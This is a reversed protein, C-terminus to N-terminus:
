ASADALLLLLLSHRNYYGEARCRRRRGSRDTLRLAASARGHGRASEALERLPTGPRLKAPHGAGFRRAFARSEVTRWVPLDGERDPFRGAVLLAAAEPHREVLHHLTAHASAGHREALELAGGISPPEAADLGQFILLSAALNAEAEIASRAARFLEDETDLRLVAEHWPCLAHALEHAETFRRRPASQGGAVYLTREEFWLAGLVPREPMAFGGPLREVPEVARIGAVPRLAELPTPVVGLVGAERLARDVIAELRRRTFSEAAM